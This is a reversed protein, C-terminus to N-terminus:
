YRSIRYIGQSPNTDGEKFCYEKLIFQLVIYFPHHMNTKPLIWRLYEGNGIMMMLDNM